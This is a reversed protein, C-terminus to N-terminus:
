RCFRNDWGDDTLNMCNLMKINYTIERIDQAWEYADELEAHPIVANVM